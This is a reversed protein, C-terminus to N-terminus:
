DPVYYQRKSTHPDAKYQKEATGFLVYGVSGLNLCGQQPVGFQHTRGPLHHVIEENV